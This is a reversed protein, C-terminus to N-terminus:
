ILQKMSKINRSVNILQQLINQYTIQMDKKVITKHSTLNSEIEWYKDSAPNLLFYLLQLLLQVTSHAAKFEGREALFTTPFISFKPNTYHQRDM